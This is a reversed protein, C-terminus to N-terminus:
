SNCRPLTMWSGSGADTPQLRWITSIEQPTIWYVPAHALNNQLPQWSGGDDFSVYLANETGLNFCGRRVPDERVCHAYSLMSASNREHDEDVNQRFRQSTFSPDRNNVQHFDVTIYAMGADWRSAEVNSVTGWEPLGSINATVNTWNKGGDRTIQVLGDNTGAWIVGGTQAIGHDCFSAPM